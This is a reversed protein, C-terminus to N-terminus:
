QFLKHTRVPQEMLNKRQSINFDEHELKAPLFNYFFSIKQPSLFKKSATNNHYFFPVIFHFFYLVCRM